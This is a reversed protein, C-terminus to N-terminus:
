WLQETSVFLFAASNHRMVGVILFSYIPNSLKMIFIFLSYTNFVRYIFRAKKGAGEGSLCSLCAHLCPSFALWAVSGHLWSKTVPVLYLPKVSCVDGTKSMNAGGLSRNQKPLCAGWMSTYAGGLSRNQKPLCAGWM